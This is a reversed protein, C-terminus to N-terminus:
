TPRAPVGVPQRADLWHDPREVQRGDEIEQAFM